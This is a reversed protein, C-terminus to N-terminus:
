LLVLDFDPKCKGFQWGENWHQGYVYEVGLKLGDVITWFSNLGEFETTKPNYIFDRGTGIFVNRNKLKRSVEFGLRSQGLSSNFDNLKINEDGTM